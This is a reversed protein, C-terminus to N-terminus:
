KWDIKPQTAMFWPYGLIAKHKGLNILFFRINMHTTGTQVMLDTYHCLKGSKNETSDMNYLQQPVPLQKIPLGPWQTYSLHLFNKTAGSNVLAVAEARKYATHM